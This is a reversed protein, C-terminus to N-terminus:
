SLSSWSSSSLSSFSLLSSSSSSSPTHGRRCHPCGQRRCVWVCRKDNTHEAPDGNGGGLYLVPAGDSSGAAALSFTVTNNATPVVIGAADIVEVQRARTCLAYVHTRLRACAHMPTHTQAHAHAHARVCTHNHMRADPTRRTYQRPTHIHTITNHEHIHTRTHTPPALAGGFWRLLNVAPGSSTFLCLSLCLSLSLSPVSLCLPVSPSLRCSSRCDSRASAQVLAVDPCGSVLSPAGVGDKISARLAVPAGATLVTESAVRRGQADYAKYCLPPLTHQTLPYTLSRHPLPSHTLHTPLQTPSNGGVVSL